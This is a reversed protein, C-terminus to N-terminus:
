QTAASYARELAQLQRCVVTRRHVLRDKELVMFHRLEGDASHRSSKIETEFRLITTNLCHLELALADIKWMFCSHPWSRVNSTKTPMRIHVGLPRGQTSELRGQGRGGRRPGRQRRGGRRPGRGFLYAYFALFMAILVVVAEYFFPSM